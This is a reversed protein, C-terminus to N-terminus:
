RRPRRSRPLHTAAGGRTRGCHDGVAPRAYGGSVPKGFASREAGLLLLALLLLALLPLVLLPLVLLLLALLLLALLM